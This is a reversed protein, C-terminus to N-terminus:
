RCLNLLEPHPFIGDPGQSQVFLVFNFSRSGSFFGSENRKEFFVLGSSFM